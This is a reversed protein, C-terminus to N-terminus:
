AGARLQAICIDLQDAACDLEERSPVSTGGIITSVAELLEITNERLKPSGTNHSTQLLEKIDSFKVFEGVNTSLMSAEAVGSNILIAPSYRTLNEM